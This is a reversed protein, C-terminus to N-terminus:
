AAEGDTVLAVGLTDIKAVWALLAHVSIPKLLCCHAQLGERHMREAHLESAALAVIPISAFRADARVARILEAGQMGPLHMDLLMLDPTDTALHALAAEADAVHHLHNRIKAEKFVERLYRADAPSDEVLLLRASRSGSSRTM